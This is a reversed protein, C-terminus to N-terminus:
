KDAGTFRNHAELCVPLKAEGGQQTEKGPKRKRNGPHRRFNAFWGKIKKWPYRVYGDFILSPLVLPALLFYYLLMTTIIRKHSPPCGKIRRIQKAKVDPSALACDGVLLLKKAEIKEDVKGLLVTLEPFRELQKPSRDKVMHLWDLFIGQCGGTCYPTGSRINFNCKFKEVHHFGFDLDQTIERAKEMSFDGLIEIQDMSSPGYGRDIAERIHEIGFPDLGLLRSCAMDHAVANTSVAIVGFHIGKQTMQNGGFALRIGDTVILDPNAAELIDVIKLHLKHHHHFLREKGDITGINLKLAGSYAHSLVNTKLKPTFVLFDREAMESAIDIHTHLKGKELVVTTRRREEMPRLKVGYKRLKKYGANHFMTSTSAGLGCNEVIDIKQVANGKAQLTKIVGEVVEKRTHCETAVKPHVMVLNPKIVIKGTVPKLLPIETLAQQIINSITDPNYDDCAGLYVPFKQKSM